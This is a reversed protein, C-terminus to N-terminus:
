VVSKRDLVAESLGVTVLVESPKYDINNERKLKDAIAQRLDM